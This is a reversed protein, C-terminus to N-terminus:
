SSDFLLSFLLCLSDVRLIVQSIFYFISDLFDAVCSPTRNTNTTHDSHNLLPGQGKQCWSTTEHFVTKGCILPVQPITTKPHNLNMVNVTCKIELRVGGGIQYSPSTRPRSTPSGLNISLCQQFGTPVPKVKQSVAM